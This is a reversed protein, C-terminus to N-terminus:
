AALGIQNPTGECAEAPTRGALASHPRDANYYDIWRGIGVRAESGTEFAHLYVCEYKMSRRLREIFVTDMWRGRGDMSVRIGAATLLGTFRPSTFQSGQDANFNEVEGQHSTGAAEAKGSFVGAMGDMAQKKWANILTQHVGHKAVLQSVTLEGRIAELAVKAKFEASYRKRKGTM